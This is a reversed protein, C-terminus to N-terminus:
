NPMNQAKLHCSNFSPTFGHPPPLVEFLWCMLWYACYYILCSHSHEQATKVNSNTNCMHRPHPASFQLKVLSNRSPEQVLCPQDQHDCKASLLSSMYISEKQFHSHLQPKAWSQWLWLLSRAHEARQSTSASHNQLTLTRTFLDM